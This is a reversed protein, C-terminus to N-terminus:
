CFTHVPCRVVSWVSTDGWGKLGGAAFRHGPGENKGRRGGYEGEGM